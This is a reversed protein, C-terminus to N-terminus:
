AMDRKLVWQDMLFNIPIATMNVAVVYYFKLNRNVSINVILLNM